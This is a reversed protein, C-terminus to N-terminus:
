PPPAPSPNWSVPPDKRGAVYPNRDVEASLFWFVASADARGLVRAKNIAAAECAKLSAVLEDGKGAVDFIRSSETVGAYASEMKFMVSRTGDSGTTNDKKWCDAPLIWTPIGVDNFRERTAVIGQPGIDM